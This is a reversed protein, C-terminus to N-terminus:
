LHLLLRDDCLGFDDKGGNEEKMINLITDAIIRGAAAPATKGPLALAHICTIGREEARDRDVGGPSSALDVILCDRRVRNIADADLVPAPVTNLIIDYQKLEKYSYDCAAAGESQVWARAQLSRVAVTVEAGLACLYRALIRGIRGYGTVLIKAGFVSDEYENLLLGVAGEATLVANRVCFEERAAYDYVAGAFYAAVTQACGTFVPKDGIPDTLQALPIRGDAFPATLCGGSVPRVPLIVAAAGDVCQEASALCVKGRGALKEFGAARVEAGRSIFAEAAYLMRQDGGIMAIRM